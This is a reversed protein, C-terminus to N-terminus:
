CLITKTTDACYHERRRGNHGGINLLYQNFDYQRCINDEMRAQDIPWFCIDPDIYKYFDLDGGNLGHHSLSLIDSKMAEGYNNAMWQCLTKEADGLVLFTTENVTLRFVSCAHNGWPFSITGNSQAGLSANTGYDEPTYVVELKCGPLMLVEGTHVIWTEANPYCSKVSQSLATANSKMDMKNENAITISDFDPFNYGVMQLDVKKYYKKIFETAVQTHDGHAHSFFWGAIVPKENNPAMGKLLTYLSILDDTTAADGANYPGGDFLIFRGDELQVISSMGAANYGLALKSGDRGNQTISPQVYVSRDTTAELAPLYGLPGYTVKYCNEVPYYMTYVAMKGSSSNQIYTAFQNNGIQNTSYVDFSKDLEACYDAYNQATGKTVAVTYNGEGTYYSSVQSAASAIPKPIDLKGVYDLAVGYMGDGCPRIASLLLDLASKLYEKQECAVVIKEGQLGIYYGKGNPATIKKMMDSVESRADMTYVLIEKPQPEDSDTGMKLDANTKTWFANRFGVVLTKETSPIENNVVLVYDTKKNEVLLLAQSPDLREEDESPQAGDDETTSSDDEGSPMEIPKVEEEACASLCFILLMLMAILRIWKNMFYVESNRNFQCM